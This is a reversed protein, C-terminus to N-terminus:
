YVTNNEEFVDSVNVVNKHKINSLNRAERIFKDKYKQVQQRSGEAPVTVSLGDKSRVCRDRMFFEKIAIKVKVNMNGLEGSLTAATEGQYTIGFGGRGLVREIRYRGNQLTSGQQLEQM